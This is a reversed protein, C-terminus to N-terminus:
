RHAPDAPVGRGPLRQAGDARRRYLYFCAVAVGLADALWDAPDPYRGPVFAQHIEDTAGYILGLAIPWGIPLRYSLAARALLLGLVAFAGFHAVKDLGGGLGGPLRPQSSISFLVAAWLLPPAWARLWSM